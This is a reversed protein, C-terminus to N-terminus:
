CLYLLFFPILDLRESALFALIQLDTLRLLDLTVTEGSTSNANPTSYYKAMYVLHSSQLTNGADRPGDEVSLHWRGTVLVAFVAGCIQM